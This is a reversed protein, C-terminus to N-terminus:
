VILFVNKVMSLGKKEKQGKLHGFTISYEHNALPSFVLGLVGEKM